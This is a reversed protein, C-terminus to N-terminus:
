PWRAWNLEELDGNRNLVWLHDEVVDSVIAPELAALPQRKVSCSLGSKKLSLLRKRVAIVTASTM